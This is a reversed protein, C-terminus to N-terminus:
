IYTNNLGGVVNNYYELIIKLFRTPNKYNFWSPKISYSIKLLDIHQGRM